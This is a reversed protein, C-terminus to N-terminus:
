FDSILMGSFTEPPAEVWDPEEATDVEM